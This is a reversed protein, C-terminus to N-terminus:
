NAIFPDITKQVREWAFELMLNTDLGAGLSSKAFVFSNRDVLEVDAAIRLIFIEFIDFWVDTDVLKTGNNFFNDMIRQRGERYRTELIEKLELKKGDEIGSYDIEYKLTGDNQKFELADVYECFFRNQWRDISSEIRSIDDLRKLQDLVQHVWPSEFGQGTRFSDSRAVM